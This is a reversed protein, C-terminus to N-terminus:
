IKDAHSRKTETRDFFWLDLDFLAQKPISRKEKSFNCSENVIQFGSVTTSRYLSM